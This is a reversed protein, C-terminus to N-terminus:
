GLRVKRNAYYALSTFLFISSFEIIMSAIWSSNYPENKIIFVQNFSKLDFNDNQFQISIINQNLTTLKNYVDRLFAVTPVNTNTLYNIWDTQSNLNQINFIRKFNDVNCADYTGNDNLIYPISNNIYVLSNSFFDIDNSSALMESNYISNIPYEKKLKEQFEKLIQNKSNILILNFYTHNGFWLYQILNGLEVSYKSAILQIINSINGSLYDRYYWVYFLNSDKNGLLDFLLNIQKQNFSNLNWIGNNNMLTNHIGSIEKSNDIIQSHNQVIKDISDMILNTLEKENLSFFNNDNMNTLVYSNGKTIFTSLNEFNSPTYKTLSGSYMLYNSLDVNSNIRSYIAQQTSLTINGPMLSNFKNVYNISNKIDTNKNNVTSQDYNYNYAYVTDIVKNNEDFKYIKGYQVKASFDNINKNIDNCNNQNSLVFNGICSTLPAVSITLLSIIPSWIRSFIISMIILLPSFLLINIFLGILNSVFLATISIINTKLALLTITSLIIMVFLLITNAILTVIFKAWFLQHRHFNKGLLKIDSLNHKNENFLKVSIFLMYLLLIVQFVISIIFSSSDLIESRLFYCLVVTVISGIVGILSILIFGISNFLQFFYYKILKNIQTM